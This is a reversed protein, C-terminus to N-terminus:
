GFSTFYGGYRSINNEFGRFPLIKPPVPRSLFLGYGFPRGSDYPRSEEGKLPPCWDPKSPLLAKRYEARYSETQKGSSLKFNILNKAKEDIRDGFFEIWSGSPVTHIKEPFRYDFFTLVEKARTAAVYFLRKSEKLLKEKDECEELIFLPSKYFKRQGSESKWRFSGPKNKRFLPPEGSSGRVSDHIGALIVRDFELGKAAHVTM